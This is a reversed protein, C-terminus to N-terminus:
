PSEGEDKGGKEEDHCSHSTEEKTVVRRVARPLRESLNSLIFLTLREEKTRMKSM